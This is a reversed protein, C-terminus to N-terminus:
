LLGYKDWVGRLTVGSLLEELVKSEGSARANAIALVEEEVTRPVVVTGDDDAM